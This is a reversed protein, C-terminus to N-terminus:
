LVTDFPEAPVGHNGHWLCVPMMGAMADTDSMGSTAGAGVEPPM